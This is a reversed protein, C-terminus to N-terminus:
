VYFASRIYLCLLDLAVYRFDVVHSFPISMGGTWCRDDVTAEEPSECLNM